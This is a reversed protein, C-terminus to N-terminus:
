RRAERSTLTLISSRPVSPLRSRLSEFFNSGRGRAPRLMATKDRSHGFKSRADSQGRGDELTLELNQSPIRGGGLAGSIAVIKHTTVPVLTNHVSHYRSYSHTLARGYRAPGFILQPPLLISLHDLLRSLECRPETEPFANGHLGGAYQRTAIGHDFAHM